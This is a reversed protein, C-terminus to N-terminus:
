QSRRFVYNCVKQFEAGATPSPSSRGAVKFGRAELRAPINRAAELEENLEILLSRVRMDQLTQAAGEVIRSEAGDVDIKIHNPFAEPFDQLFRDLTYCIVGQAFVPTFQEHRWDMAAGVNSLAAGPEFRSLYLVDRAYRDAFAIPYCQVIKALDNLYVNRNLEAFNNADPEFALVRIGRMGAYISYLGINAGVDFFVEGPAFTGIWELTDPEKTFFTEARWRTLANPCSLRYVLGGRSVQYVPRIKELVRSKLRGAVNLGLLRISCDLAMEALRKPAFAPLLPEEVFFM